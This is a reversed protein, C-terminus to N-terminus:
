SHEQEWRNYTEVRSRWETGMKLLQALYDVWWREWLEYFTM